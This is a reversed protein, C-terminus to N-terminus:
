LCKQRLLNGPDGVNALSERLQILQRHTGILKIKSRNKYIFVDAWYYGCDFGKIKSSLYNAEVKGNVWRKETVIPKDNDLPNDFQIVIYSSQPLKKRAKLTLSYQGSKDSYDLLIGTSKTELYESIENLPLSGFLRSTIKNYRKYNNHKCGQVREYGNVLGMCIVEGEAVINNLLHSRITSIEEWESNPSEFSIQFLSGTESSAVNINDARMFPGAQPEHSFTCGYGILPGSLINWVNIVEISNNDICKKTEAMAVGEVSAGGIGHLNLNVQISLGTTYIGGNKIEQKSIFYGVFNPRTERLFHWGDPILVAGDIDNLKKLSYGSPVQIKEKDLALLDCSFILLCVTIFSLFINNRMKAILFSLQRNGLM